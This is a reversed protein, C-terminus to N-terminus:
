GLLEADALVANKSRILRGPPPVRTCCRRGGQDRVQMIDDMEKAKDLMQLKQQM